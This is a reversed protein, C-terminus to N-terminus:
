IRFSLGGRFLFGDFLGADLMLRFKESLRVRLGLNLQLIPVFNLPWDKGEALREEKIERLTKSDSASYVQNSGDPLTLTGSYYYHYNADLFTKSTSIGAGLCFYPSVIKSPLFDWRMNLHFSLPKVLFEGGAQAVFNATGGTSTDNLNLNAMVEPFSVKMTSQEVALGLSFAGTRGGPYYRIEFGINHGPADFVVSQSYGSEVLNPYNEQIQQLFRDKLDSELADSVMNEVIGKVLNLTWRSYHVNFELHGDAQLFRASFILIVMLWILRKKM